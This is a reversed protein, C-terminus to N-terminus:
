KKLFDLYYDKKNIKVKDVNVFGLFKNLKLANTYEASTLTFIGNPYLELARNTLWKVAKIYAKPYNAVWKTSLLWVVGNQENLFPGVGACGLLKTDYFISYSEKSNEVNKNIALHPKIKLEKACDKVEKYDEKRIDKLLRNKDNYYSLIALKGEVM